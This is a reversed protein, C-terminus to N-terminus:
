RVAPTPVHALMREGPTLEFVEVRSNRTDAVFLRGTSDIWIASPLKFSRQGGSESGLFGLFRGDHRYVRVGSGLMNSLYINAHEDLALGIESFIPPGNESRVSFSHILNYDPDFIAIRSGFRDLVVVEDNWVVIESPHKLNVTSRGREGGIRKLVNGLLDMAIMEDGTSDVVYLRARKKDIAIASPSDFMSEGQVIGLYRLFKGQPDYVSILGLKRDAVYIKDESDVAIAGPSQLRRQPGGSIRFSKKGALDLIHIANLEPDSVIMRGQSDTVLHTPHYLVKQRGYAFTVINDLLSGLVSHGGVATSAHVPPAYNEVVSENSHLRFSRPVVAQNPEFYEGESPYAAANNTTRYSGDPLYIGVLVPEQYLKDPTLESAGAVFSELHKSDASVLSQTFSTGCLAVCVVAYLAARFRTSSAM